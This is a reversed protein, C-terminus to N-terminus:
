GSDATSVTPSTDQGTRGAAKELRVNKIGGGGFFEVIINDGDVVAGVPYEKEPALVTVINGSWISVTKKEKQLFAAWKRLQSYYPEKRWPSSVGPDCCIELSGNAAKTVLFKSKEPKWDPGLTPDGLWMCIFARCADPRDTYIGCGKGPRCHPCWVGRPSNLTLIRLVKCCLTCTGCSRGPAPEARIDASSM